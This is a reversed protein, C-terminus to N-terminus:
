VPNRVFSTRDLIHSLADELTTHAIDAAGYQTQNPCILVTRMGLEKPVDLNRAADEIMAAKAPVVDALEFVTEFAARQPKPAYGAHEIGFIDTFLGDLGRAALVNSAYPRTGNTYVLKRGPLADILAVLDGAHPVVSFDIQHVDHLFDDPPMDHHAMLGALTTGHDAWYQKRLTEAQDTTISLYAAMFRRMRNEMQGFLDVHPPYLTNDLDFVWTDIHAFDPHM